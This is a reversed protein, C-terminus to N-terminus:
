NLGSVPSPDITACTPDTVLWFAHLLAPTMIRSVSVGPDLCAVINTLAAFPSANWRRVRVFPVDVLLAPAVAEAGYQTFTVRLPDINLAKSDASPTLQVATPLAVIFM